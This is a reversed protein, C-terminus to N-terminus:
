KKAKAKRKGYRRKLEDEWLGPPGENKWKTITSQSKDLAKALAKCSGEVAIAHKLTNNEM